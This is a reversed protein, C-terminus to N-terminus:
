TDYFAARQSHLSAYYVLFGSLDIHTLQMIRQSRVTIGLPNYHKVSVYHMHGFTLFPIYFNGNTPYPEPHAEKHRTVTPAALHGSEALECPLALPHLSTVM